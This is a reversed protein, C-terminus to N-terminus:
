LAAVHTSTATIARAFVKAHSLSRSNLMDFLEDMQEIFEATGSYDDIGSSCTQIMCLGAAASHSLVQSIIFNYSNVSVSSKLEELMGSRCRHKEASFTLRRNLKSVRVRLNRILKTKPTVLQRKGGSSEQPAKRKLSQHRPTIRLASRQLLQSSTTAHQLLQSPEFSPPAQGLPEVSPCPSSLSPVAFKNLWRKVTSTFDKDQFHKSCLRYNTHLTRPKVAQLSTSGIAQLWLRQREPDKPFLHLFGEADKTMLAIELIEDINKSVFTEYLARSKQTMDLLPDHKQIRLPFLNVIEMVGYVKKEGKLLDTLMETDCQDVVDTVMDSLLTFCDRGVDDKNEAQLVEALPCRIEGFHGLLLLSPSAPRVVPNGLQSKYGPFLPLILISQSLM